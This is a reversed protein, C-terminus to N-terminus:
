WEIVDKPLRRETTSGCKPLDEIAAHVAIKTGTRRWFTILEEGTNAFNYIVWFFFSALLQPKSM